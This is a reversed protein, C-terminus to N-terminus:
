VSSCLPITLNHFLPRRFESVDYLAPRVVFSMKVRGWRFLWSHSAICGIWQSVLQEGMDSDPIQAILHLNPPELLSSHTPHTM